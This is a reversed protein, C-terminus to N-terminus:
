KKDFLCFFVRSFPPIKSANDTIQGSTCVDSTVSLPHKKVATKLASAAGFPIEVLPTEKARFTSTQQCNYSVIELYDWVTKYDQVSQFKYKDPLLEFNPFNIMYM